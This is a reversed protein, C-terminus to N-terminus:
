TLNGRNEIKSSRRGISTRARRRQCVGASHWGWCGPMRFEDDNLRGCQFAQLVAEVDGCLHPRVQVGRSRLARWLGESLAACVLVDVNLESVCSALAETSLPAIVLEKRSVIKQRRCTVLLLCSATDLLPSVRKRAIPIAIKVGLSFAHVTGSRWLDSEGCSRRGKWVAAPQAPHGVSFGHCLAM